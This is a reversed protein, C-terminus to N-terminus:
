PRRIEYRFLRDTAPSADHGWTFSGRATSKLWVRADAASQTTPIPAVLAGETCLSDAVTTETVDSALAVLSAGLANTGGRALDSLAQVVKEPNSENKGPVIM